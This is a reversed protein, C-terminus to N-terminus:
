EEKMGTVAIIAKRLAEIRNNADNVGDMDENALLAKRVMELQFVKMEYQKIQEDIMRNKQETTLM